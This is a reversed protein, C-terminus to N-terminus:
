RRPKRPPDKLYASLYKGWNNAAKKTDLPKTHERGKDSAKGGLKGHLIRAKWKSQAEQIMHTIIAANSDGDYAPSNKRRKADKLVELAEQDKPYRTRKRKPTAPTAGSGSQAAEVCIRTAEVKIEHMKRKINANRKELAQQISLNDYKPKDLGAGCIFSAAKESITNIANTYHQKAAIIATGVVTAIQKKTAM